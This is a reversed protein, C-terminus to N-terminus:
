WCVATNQRTTGTHESGDKSTNYSHACFPKQRTVVLQNIEEMHTGLTLSIVEESYDSM